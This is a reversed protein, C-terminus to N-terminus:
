QSFLVCLGLEEEVVVDYSVNEGEIFSQQRQSPKKEGEQNVCLHQHHYRNINQM